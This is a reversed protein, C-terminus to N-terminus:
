RSGTDSAGESGARPKMDEPEGTYPGVGAVPGLDEASVQLKAAKRELALSVMDVISDLDLVGTNVVLDYLHPEDPGCKYHAHLYRSRDRDKMNIRRTAESEDLEERRAVYEIRKELPAVIRVHLVDRRDALIVQSGRGVIVVHGAEAAAQVVHTVATRYENDYSVPTTPSVMLSYEAGQMGSLIRAVLGQAHEDLDEAEEETVGLESAVQAVVEHDVLKWGLRAALRTAVEGGGSGYERSITVARMETIGSKAEEM